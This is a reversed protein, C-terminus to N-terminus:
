RSFSGDKLSAARQEALQVLLKTKALVRDSNVWFSAGIGDFVGTKELELLQIIDLATLRMGELHEAYIGTAPVPGVANERDFYIQM